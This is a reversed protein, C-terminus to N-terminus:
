ATQPREHNDEARVPLYRSLVEILDSGSGDLDFEDTM